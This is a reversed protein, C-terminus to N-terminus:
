VGRGRLKGVRGTARLTPWTISPSFRKKKQLSTFDTGMIVTSPSSVYAESLNIFTSLFLFRCHLSTVTIPWSMRALLISRISTGYVNIKYLCESSPDASFERLIALQEADFIANPTNHFSIICSAFTRTELMHAVSPGTYTNSSM